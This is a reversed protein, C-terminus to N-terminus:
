DAALGTYKKENNEVTTESFFFTPIPGEHLRCGSEAV